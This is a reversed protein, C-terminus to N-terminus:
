RKQEREKGSKAINGERMAFVIYLTDFTGFFISPPCPTLGTVKSYAYLTM